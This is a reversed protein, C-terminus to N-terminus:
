NYMDLGILKLFRAHIEFPEFRQTKTDWMVNFLSAFAKKKDVIVVDKWLGERASEHCTQLKYCPVRTSLHHIHHYEIGLTAWKLYWPVLLYTSGLFQADKYEYYKDEVWYGKNVEHQWHFLLFGTICGITIGFLEFWFFSQNFNYLIILLTCNYITPWHSHLQNMNRFRYYVLFQFLPVITFFIIPDRIIRWMLREYFPMNYYEEKTFRITRAEDKISRNGLHAHHFLHNGRWYKFPTLCIGSILTGILQNWFSNSFFSSHTCDHFIMYSRLWIGGLLFSWGIRASTSNLYPFAIHLIIYCAITSILVMLAQLDNPQSFKKIHADIEKYRNETKM